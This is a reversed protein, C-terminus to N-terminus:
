RSGPRRRQTPAYTKPKAEETPASVVAPSSNIYTDPCNKTISTKLEPIDKINSKPLGKQFIVAEIKNQDYPGLNEVKVSNELQSTSLRVYSNYVWGVPIVSAGSLNKLLEKLSELSYRKIGDKTILCFHNYKKLTTPLDDKKQEPIPTGVEDCQYYNAFQSKLLDLNEKTESSVLPNAKIKSMSASLENFINSIKGDKYYFGEWAKVKRAATVSEYCTVDRKQQELSYRNAYASSAILFLVLTLINSLKM